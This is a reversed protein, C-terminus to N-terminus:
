RYRTAMVFGGTIEALGLFLYRNQQDGPLVGLYNVIVILTGVLLLSFMMVPIWLPSPPKKKPSPPTYRSRKSKSVPM